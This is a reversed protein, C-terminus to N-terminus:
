CIRWLTCRWTCSLQLRFQIRLKFKLHLDTKLHLSLLARLHLGLNVRKSMKRSIELHVRLHVILNVRLHTYGKIVSVYSDDVTAYFVDKEKCKWWKWANKLARELSIKSTSELAIYLVGWIGRKISNNQAIKHMLLHVVM